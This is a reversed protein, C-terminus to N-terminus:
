NENTGEKFKYFENVLSKYGLLKIYDYKIKFNKKSYKGTSLYRINQILYNDIIQLTKHTTIVPFFWKCWSLDKLNEKRYFKNNFIRILVKITHELTKQKKEKWRYLSRAKRRIKDKIKKLTVKSLDIQGNDYEFGLFSWPQNPEFINEKSSNVTLDKQNLVKLIYERYKNLKEKQEAFVIIDDSYRAYIINNNEFYKDLELLYLNAIFASLSTGAMAGRKETIVEGNLVSKDVLLINKIFNYLKEDKILTEKLIPLFKDINISNFYNSIDLKYCYYNSIGKNSLLNFFAKKVSMNKRFSYCNTAFCDDYNHLQYSIFKLIINEKYEFSYVVRKKNVGSKNILTKTPISFVYTGDVINKAIDLYENNEVFKKLEIEETKTQNSNRFKYDLFEQWKEKQLLTNLLSM